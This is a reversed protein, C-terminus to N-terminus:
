PIFENWNAAMYAKKFQTKQYLTDSTNYRKETKINQCSETIAGTIALAWYIKEHSYLNAGPNQTLSRPVSPHLHHTCFRLYFSQFHITHPRLITAGKIREIKLLCISKWHTQLSMLKEQFFFNMMVSM